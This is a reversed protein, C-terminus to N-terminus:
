KCKLAYALVCHQLSMYDKANPEGTARAFPSGVHAMSAVYRPLNEVIAFDWAMKVCRKKTFVTHLWGPPVHVRWGEKQEVKVVGDANVQMYREYMQEGQLRLDKKKVKQVGLWVVFDGWYRPVIFYWVAKIEGVVQPMYDQM